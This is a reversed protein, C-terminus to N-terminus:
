SEPGSLRYRARSGEILAYQLRDAKEVDPTRAAIVDAYLFSEGIRVLAYALADPDIMTELGHEDIDWLLLDRIAAITGPQILGVPDMLVRVALAPEDDILRRLGPSAAVIANFHRLAGTTHLADAPKEREWRKIAVAISRETQAWVARALLAERGGVRRFLTTRSIGLEEALAQMDLRRGEAFWQAAREVADFEDVAHDSDGAAAM